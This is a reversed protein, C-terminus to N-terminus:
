PALPREGPWAPRFAVGRARGTAVHCTRTNSPAPSHHGTGGYLGTVHSRPLYQGRAHHETLPRSRRSAPEPNDLSPGRAVGGVVDDAFAVVDRIELPNRATEASPRRTFGHRSSDEGGLGVVPVVPISHGYGDVALGDTIEGSLIGDM